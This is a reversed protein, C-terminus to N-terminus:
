NEFYKILNFYYINVIDIELACDLSLDQEFDTNKKKNKVFIQKFGM